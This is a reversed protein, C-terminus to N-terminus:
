AAEGLKVVELEDGILRSDILGGSFSDDIATAIQWEALGTERSCRAYGASNFFYKGDAFRGLFEALRLVARLRRPSLRGAPPTWNFRCSM